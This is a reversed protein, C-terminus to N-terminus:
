MNVCLYNPRGWQAAQAAAMAASMAAPDWSPGAGPYGGAGAGPYGGPASAGQLVELASLGGVSPAPNSQPWQQAAAAMVGGPWLAASAAASAAISEGGEALSWDENGLGGLSRGASAKGSGGDNRGGRPSKRRNGKLADELSARVQESLRPALNDLVQRTEAEPAKSSAAEVVRRLLDASLLGRTGEEPSARLYARECLSLASRVEGQVLCGEIVTAYMSSRAGGVAGGERDLLDLVTDAKPIDRAKVACTVLCSWVMRTPAVGHMERMERSVLHCALDLRGARSLLKVLISFTVSSPRVCRQRMETFLRLGLQLDGAKVCGELLSNYM